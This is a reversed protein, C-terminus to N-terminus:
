ARACRECIFEVRAGEASQRAFVEETHRNLARGCGSCALPKAVCRACVAARGAIVGGRSFDGSRVRAGCESCAPGFVVPLQVAREPGGVCRRWVLYDAPLARGQRLAYEEAAAVLAQATNPEVRVLRQGTKRGYEGLRAQFDGATLGVEGWATAIGLEVPDVAVAAFRLLGHGRGRAVVVLMRGDPGPPTALAAWVPESSGARAVFVERAAVGQRQLAVLSARAAKRVGPDRRRMLDRLLPLAEPTAFRALGGAIAADVHPLQLSMAAELLRLLAPTGDQLVPALAAQQDATSLAAFEERWLLLEGEDDLADDALGRGGRAAGEGSTAEELRRLLVTMWVQETPNPSRTNLLRELERLAWRAPEGTLCGLLAAAKERRGAGRRLAGRVLCAVGERGLAVLRGAAEAVAEKAASPDLGGVLEDVQRAVDGETRTPGNM